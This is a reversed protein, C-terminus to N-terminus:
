CWVIVRKEVQAAAEAVDTVTVTITQESFLTGDSARVVVVYTNNADADSPSEFDPAGVFALVGTSAGITFRAADAGGSISYTVADGNSDTATVTTVATTNEAVSVAATAGGGNSTIVPAAAPGSFTGDGGMELVGLIPGEFGGAGAASHSADTASAVVSGDVLLEILTDTARLRVTRITSIPSIGAGGNGIYSFVGNVDKFLRWDGVGNHWFAGYGNLTAGSGSSRIRPGSDAFNVRCQVYYNPSSHTGQIVAMPGDNGPASLGGAGNVNLAKTEGGPRIWPFGQDTTTSQIPTGAPDTFSDTVTFPM